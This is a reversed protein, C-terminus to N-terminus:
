WVFGGVPAVALDDPSVVPVSASADAARKDEELSVREKRKRQSQRGAEACIQSRTRGLPAPVAVHRGELLQRMALEHSTTGKKRGLRTSRQAPAEVFPHMTMPAAEPFTDHPDRASQLSAVPPLAVNGMATVVDDAPEAKSRAESVAPAECEDPLDFSDIEIDFSM